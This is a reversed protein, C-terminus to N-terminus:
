RKTVTYSGKNLDITVETGDAFVTRQVRYTDDLFAHSVMEQKAVQLHLDTVAKCRQVKEEMTFQVDGEFSGDVNPYAGDRELYPAGGNLLAYLMYDESDSLKEMMWPEILCDHYVLNFLPVGVGIQPSGPEELMFSYPAYHCFVLSEMAWDAAEESSPLIGEAILYDFCKRRYEYCDRRTMRHAPNACEDGENCTFVDLYAGDLKVGHKRIESFNRRVYYQAQSACLYSQPGGAWHSHGPISGDVNRCAYEDSYSPAEHYYDRYQDHIGFRYGHAHYADALDKMGEWGGAAECAPLYDPHCNDYGPEAWGDLHLYLKEVGLAHYAEMEQRRVAFPTLSNNKEPAAPDFFGSKPNVSTKIGKHVFVTGILDALAPIRAEKQSLTAALHNEMVYRRYIKCMTNYDCGRRFSYRLSRRYEMRGLSPEWSVSMHTYPGGAPHDMHVSGNWPTQAIAIYGDGERIQSFWPMYAGATLFMGDFCFPRGPTEWDNPILLGQRETALTYWDRRGEEFAMPGPWFVKTVTGDERLPIWEFFVDGTSEEIWVYTDFAIEYTTGDICFGEYHSRIGQGIGNQIIRHDKQVADAFAAMQGDLMLEPRYSDLWEWRAGESEIAFKLTDEDFILKQGSQNSIEV